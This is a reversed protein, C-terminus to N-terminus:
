SKSGLVIVSSSRRSRLARFRSSAIFAGALLMPNVRLSRKPGPEAVSGGLLAM